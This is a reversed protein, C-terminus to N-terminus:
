PTLVIDEEEEEEEEEGHMRSGAPPAHGDLSQRARAPVYEYTPQQPFYFICVNLRSHRAGDKSFDQNPLAVAM